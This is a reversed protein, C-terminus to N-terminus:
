AAPVIAGLLACIHGDGWLPLLIRSDALSRHYTPGHALVTTRCQSLLDDLPASCVIEDVFQGELQTGYSVSVREGVIAFRFRKPPGELVDILLAYPRVEGLPSLKVDDAFPIDAQGRKLSQWYSRVADLQRELTAPLAFRDSDGFNM